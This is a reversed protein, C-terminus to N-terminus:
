RRKLGATIVAKHKQCVRKRGRLDSTSSKGATFSGMLMASKDPIKKENNDEPLMCQKMTLREEEVFM